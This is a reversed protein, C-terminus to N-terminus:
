YIKGDTKIIFDVIADKIHTINEYDVVSLNDKPTHVVEGIGDQGVIFAADGDYQFLIHDSTGVIRGGSYAYPVEECKINNEKLVKTFDKYLEDSEKQSNKIALGKGTNMGICDININYWDKYKSKNEKIFAECGNLGLEEANFAAIIIDHKFQKEKLRAVLDKSCELITAVGSANDIAGPLKEGRYTVHDFHASIVVAKSSDEGKIVGIVNDVNGELSNYIGLNRSYFTQYYSDGNFPELGISEFYNKIFNSTRVNEDTGAVRGSYQNSCIEEMISKINLEQANKGAETVITSLEHNMVDKSENKEGCSVILLCILVLLLSKIKRM